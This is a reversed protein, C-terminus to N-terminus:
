VCTHACVGIHCVHRQKQKNQRQKEASGQTRIRYSVESQNHTTEQRLVLMEGITNEDENDLKSRETVRKEIFLCM